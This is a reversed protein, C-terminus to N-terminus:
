SRIINSKRSQDTESDVTIPCEFPEIAIPIAKDTTIPTEDTPVPTAVLARRARDGQIASSIGSLDFTSSLAGETMSILRSIKASWTKGDPDEEFTAYYENTM